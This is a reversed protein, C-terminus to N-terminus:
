TKVERSWSERVCVNEITHYITCNPICDDPVINVKQTKSLNLTQVDEDKNFELWQTDSLEEKWETCQWSGQNINTEPLKIIILLILGLAVFGMLFTTIEMSDDKM